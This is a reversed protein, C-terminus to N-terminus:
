PCNGIHNCHSILAKEDAIDGQYPYTKAVKQFTALIKEAVQPNKDHLLAIAYQTRLVSPFKKMQKMFQQQEKDYLSEIDKGALLHCYIKDAVLLRKHLNTASCDEQLLRNMIPVAEPFRQQALLQNAYFVGITAVMVNKLDEEEPMYLWDSSIQSISAGQMLKQNIALQVWMAYIAKPNRKQALVNYGDNCVMQSKIPIGNTLAFVVGFLIVCVSFTTLFVTNPFFLYLIAFIGSCVLNGICGGYGYLVYPIVGNQLAPPIMLCQGGTGAIHLFHLQVKGKDKSWMFPGIRFSSFQYGSLLGCVLHGAEHVILQLYTALVLALVMFGSGGLSSEAKTDPLFMAAFFGAVAGILVFALVGVIQTLKKKM